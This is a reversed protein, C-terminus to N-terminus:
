IRIEEVFRPNPMVFIVCIVVYTFTVVVSTTNNCGENYIEFKILACISYRILTDQDHNHIGVICHIWMNYHIKKAEDHCECVIKVIM